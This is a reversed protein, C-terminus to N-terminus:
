LESIVPNLEPALSASAASYPAPDNFTVNCDVTGGGIVAIYQARLAEVDARVNMLQANLDAVLAERSQPIDSSATRPADTTEDLADSIQDGFQPWIIFNFLLLVVLSVLLAVFL